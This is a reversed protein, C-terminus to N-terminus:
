FLEAQAPDAEAETAAAARANRPESPKAPKPPKGPKSPKVPAAKPKRQPPLGSKRSGHKAQVSDAQALAEPTKRLGYLKDKAAKLMAREDVIPAPYANSAFEPVWRRVFDGQPDHDLAQKAPSYIRM